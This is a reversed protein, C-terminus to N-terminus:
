KQIMLQGSYIKNKFHLQLFYQGQVLTPLEAKAEGNVLFTKASFLFKGQVDYIFIQGEGFIDKDGMDLAILDKAPNPSLALVNIKSPVFPTAVLESIDRKWVGADTSVYLINQDAFALSGTRLLNLGENYPAWSDGNDTSYYIGYYRISALAVYNGVGILQPFSQAEFQGLTVPLGIPQYKQWSQGSDDSVLGDRTVIRGNLTFLDDPFYVVDSEYSKQWTQGQNNSIYIRNIPSAFTSLVWNGNVFGIDVIYGDIDPFSISDWSTGQNTSFIGRHTGNMEYRDYLLITGNFTKCTLPFSGNQFITDYVGNQFRLIKGSRVVFITDGLFAFVKGQMEQGNIDVIHGWSEGTNSTSYRTQTYIVGSDPQLVGARSSIFGDNSQLVTDGKLHYFGLPNGIILSDDYMIADKVGWYGWDPFTEVVSWSLGNDCSRLLSSGWYYLCDGHRQFQRLVSQYEGIALIPLFSAGLDNSRFITGQSAILILSDEMYYSDNFLSISGFQALSFVPSWTVGVDSSIFATDNLAALINTENSTMYMGLESNVLIKKWKNTSAQYKYMKLTKGCFLTNNIQRLDVSQIDPKFTSTVTSAAIGANIKSWNQGNDTTQLIYASTAGDRRLEEQVLFLITDGVSTSTVVRDNLGLIDVTGWSYGGDLSKVLCGNAGAWITNGVTELCYVEGGEIGNTQEWQSFLLMQSVLIFIFTFSYKSVM